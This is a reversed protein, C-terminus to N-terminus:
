KLMGPGHEQLRSLAMSDLKGHVQQVHLDDQGYFSSLVLM